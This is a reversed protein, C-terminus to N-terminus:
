CSQSSAKWGYKRGYYDDEEDPDAGEPVPEYYGGMGYGGMDMSFGVDNEDAIVEAEWVLKQAQALLEAIKKSAEQKDMDIRRLALLM